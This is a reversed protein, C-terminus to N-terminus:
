GCIDIYSCTGDDYSGTGINHNCCDQASDFSIEGGESFVKNTCIGGYFFFPKPECSPTGCPPFPGYGCCPPFTGYGCEEGGICENTSPVCTQGLACIVDYYDCSLERTLHNCESVSNTCPIDHCSWGGCDKDNSTCEGCYDDGLKIVHAVSGQKAICLTEYLEKEESYHCVYVKKGNEHCLDNCEDLTIKKSDRRLYHKFWLFICKCIMSFVFPLSILMMTNVKDSAMVMRAIFLIAVVLSTFM